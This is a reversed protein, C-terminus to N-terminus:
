VMMTEEQKLQFSIVKLDHLLCSHQSNSQWTKMIGIFLHLAHFFFQPPDFFQIVLVRSSKDLGSLLLLKKNM